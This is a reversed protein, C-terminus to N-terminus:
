DMGHKSMGGQQFCDVVPHLFGVDYEVEWEVLAVELWIAVLIVFVPFLDLPNNSNARTHFAPGPHM